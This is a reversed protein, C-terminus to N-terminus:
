LPRGGGHAHRDHPDHAHDDTGIGEPALHPDDVLLRGDPLEHIRGGFATRLHDGTLVQEPAGAAVLSTALLVVVDCRRADDLDHTSVLVTRGADREADVVDLIAEKSVLDLGTVPEDLCLVAAGQALGQAVLARQRQGGSLEHLSRDALDAVDLRALAADVAQHDAARLRGLLGRRAWRGMRVAERVTVPLSRDVTTSQLVIAVDGDVSVTGATPSQLGAVTRLLTSKGSGNPGIVAVSTGAEVTLTLPALAVHEGHHVCLDRCDVALPVPVRYADTFGLVLTTRMQPVGDAGPYGAPLVSFREWSRGHGVGGETPEEGHGQGGEGQEGGTAVAGGAVVGRARGHHHGRRHQAVGHDGDDAVGGGDLDHEGRPRVGVLELGRGALDVREARGVGDDGHASAELLGEARDEVGGGLVAHGHVLEEVAHVVHRADAGRGVVLVAVVVLVPVVLM